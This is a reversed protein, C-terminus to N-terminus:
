TWKEACGFTNLDPWEGSEIARPASGFNDRHDFGLSPWEPLQTAATDGKNTMLFFWLAAFDGFLREQRMRGGKLWDTDMISIYDRMGQVMAGYTKDCDSPFDLEPEGEWQPSM